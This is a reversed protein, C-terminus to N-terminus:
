SLLHVSLIIIILSETVPCQAAPEKASKQIMIFTYRPSLTILQSVYTDVILENNESYVPANLGRHGSLPSSYWGTVSFYRIIKVCHLKLQIHTLLCESKTFEHFKVFSSPRVVFWNYHSPYKVGKSHVLPLFVTRHSDGRYPCRVISVVLGSVLQKGNSFLDIPISWRHVIAIPKYNNTITTFM